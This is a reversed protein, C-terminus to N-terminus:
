ASLYKFWAYNSSAKVLYWGYMSNLANRLWFSSTYGIQKMVICLRKLM